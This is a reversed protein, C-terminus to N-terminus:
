LRETHHCVSPIRTSAPLPPRIILELGILPRIQFFFITPSEKGLNSVAKVYVCVCLHQQSLNSVHPQFLFGSTTLWWYPPTTSWNLLCRWYAFHLENLTPLESHWLTWHWQTGLAVTTVTWCHSRTTNDHDKGQRCAKAWSLKWTGEAAGSHPREGPQEWYWELLHIHKSGVAEPTM